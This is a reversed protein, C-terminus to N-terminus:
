QKEPASETQPVVGNASPAEYLEFEKLNLRTQHTEVESGDPMKGQFYDKQWGRKLADPNRVNLDSLFGRRSAEWVLYQAQLEPNTTLPERRPALNEAFGRPIPVIMCFPEGKEFSIWECVRTIKWNM